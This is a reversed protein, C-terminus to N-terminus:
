DLDGTNQVQEAVGRLRIPLLARGPQLYRLVKCTLWGTPRSKIWLWRLKMGKAGNADLALCWLPWNRTRKRAHKKRRRSEVTHRHTPTEGYLSWGLFSCASDKKISRVCTSMWASRWTNRVPGRHSGSLVLGLNRPIGFRCGLNRTRISTVEGNEQPLFPFEGCTVSSPTRCRTLDPRVSCEFGLQISM